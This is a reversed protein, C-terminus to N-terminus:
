QGQEIAISSLTEFSPRTTGNRNMYGFQGISDDHSQYWWIGAVHPDNLFASYAARMKTAQEQQSCAGTPGGCNSLSYGFETIYIPPITGLVSRAVSEQASVANVGNVDDDNEGLAGYPHTSLGNALIAAALGPVGAVADRLWGGGHADQSHGTPSSWNGLPYDGFMDFLLPTHIGAAKIANVAALYMRGYQVPNAIQGKYYMENGAEAISIGPNARLQAVVESGWGIPESTSLPTSDKLNGVIALVHFGDSLSVAATDSSGGLEIRDWTIHGALIERAAVSGWGSGDNTGIIEGSGGPAPAPAEGEAPPEPAPKTKPKHKPKPEPEAGPATVTAEQESWTTGGDASVRIYATEGPALAVTYFQLSGATRAISLYRIKRASTGPASKSIAVEYSAAGPIASWIVTKWLVGLVPTEHALNAEPAPERTTATVNQESSNVGGDAGSEMYAPEGGALAIPVPAGLAPLTNAAPLADAGAPSPAALVGASLAGALMVLLASMRGASPRDVRRDAVAPTRRYRM